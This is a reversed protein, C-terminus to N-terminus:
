LMPTVFLFSAWPGRERESLGRTAKEKRMHYFDFVNQLQVAAEQVARQLAEHVQV